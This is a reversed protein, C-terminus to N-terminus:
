RQQWIGCQEASHGSSLCREEFRRVREEKEAERRRQAEIEAQTPPVYVPRGTYDTPVCTNNIFVWGPMGCPGNVQQQRIANQLWQQQMWFYQSPTQSNATNPALVLALVAVTGLFLKRM